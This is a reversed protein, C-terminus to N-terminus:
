DGIFKGCVFMLCRGNFLTEDPGHYMECNYLRMDLICRGTLGNIIGYTKIRYLMGYVTGAQVGNFLIRAKYAWVLEGRGSMVM